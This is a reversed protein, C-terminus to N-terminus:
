FTQGLSFHFQFARIRQVRFNGANLTNAPDCQTLLVDINGQCGFFRPANLNYALDVRVPGIPTRYRIGLGVAHSMYNFNTINGQNWRLTIRRLTSFVNGADHFLVGGINDGLLPFRLETNNFLLAKGCLPFGTSPDRPGAQNEPFGRHSNAGGSFFREPLPVDLLDPDPGGPQPADERSSDFGHLWGFQVSRALVLDRNLRHYTTNRGLIRSFTSQSGFYRSAMGIDITNYVGRRSDIPDDRRDQIFTTSLLGIRVPRSLLPLLGPTIKVNSVAVRRFSARYQLSNARSLRQGVQATAELRRASFTRIDRSDDYIGSLTLNVNENGGFQPALYTLLGRRQINSVRTQLGITHGTGLFNLRSIGFLLRPSFGGSGGPNSLSTQGGGIRAIEAGFGVNVSYRKAEELRYQVYKFQENGEPNQLATDVRAFIGLDYLRRQSETVEVQSLPEGRELTIRSLVLSRRTADLGSILVDRVFQPQGEKVTYVLDMRNPQKAPATSAEFEANPYGNNFFYSLISDQDTAVNLESFPQGETSHLRARIEEERAPDLGNIQLSNVFWQPGENITISVAV